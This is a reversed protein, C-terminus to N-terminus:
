PLEIVRGFSNKRGTNFMNCAKVKKDSLFRKDEQGVKEGKESDTGIHILRGQANTDQVRYLM